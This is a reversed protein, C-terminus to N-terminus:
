SVAAALRRWGEAQSPVSPAWGTAAKFREASVRQSRSLVARLNGPVAFRLLWRPLRWLRSRGVAAALATMAEAQTFPTDEVVDFVGGPANDLAAAVAAAADDIWIMSKYTTAPALPLALGKRAMALMQRSDGSAPGYFAGFRLVIGRRGRGGTKERAFGTVCDEADITSAVPPVAAITASDASLTDAGGDAYIFCISPYVVTDVTGTKEAAKVLAATGDRRIRDNDDWATPSKMESAPPIRTALHLVASCGAMGLALQEADFLDGHFPTAGLKTITEDNRDSRSLATVAHGAEVLKAVVPRGLVGTAGTVFINM